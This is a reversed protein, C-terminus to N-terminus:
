RAAVAPAGPITVYFASILNERLYSAAVFACGGVGWNIGYSNRFIFVLDEPRGSPCRYGILTVAHGAGEQPKQDRLLNNGVLSRWQPWHIGIVVPTHENLSMVIREILQPDERRFWVPVINRRASADLLVDTTPHIDTVSKGFSNRMVSQPPVGYTQLASVVEDFHYGNDLPIGPQLEHVAWVLFEESLPEAKGMRRAIEYEVASVTAFVSCSPRRGQDKMYLGFKRFDTRLDVEAEIQVAVYHGAPARAIEADSPRAPIAPAPPPANKVRAEAVRREEERTVAIATQADRKWAAAKEPDYSFRQQLESPLTALDLQTIGGSHFITITAATVERVRVATYTHGSVDWTEGTAAHASPLLALLLVACALARVFRTLHSVRRSM